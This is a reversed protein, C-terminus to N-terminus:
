SVPVLDRVRKVLHHVHDIPTTPLIGHGLNTIWPGAMLSTSLQEIASDIADPGVILADPDINGQVAVHQQLDAAAWALDIDPDVSVGAVGPIEAIKPYGDPAKRPFVIIPTQPSHAKLAEVIKTIPQLSWRDFDAGHLVQAWSEFIQVIDAGADIQACLYDISAETLRDVIGQLADPNNRALHRIPALDPTGRGAVMYSGVTWPAGCFGIVATEDTLTQRLRRVTEFSPELHALFSQRDYDPLMTSADIPDLRPGEGEAFWLNQGLAHPVVLIDSFLIAADFQFRRIPQLSVETAMDPDYCLDLFGGAKSRLARYEPLYRGAQRMLWIPPPHVIQGNLVQLIRSM